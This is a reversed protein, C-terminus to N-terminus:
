ARGCEPASTAASTIGLFRSPAYKRCWELSVVHHLQSLRATRQEDMEMCLLTKAIYLSQRLVSLLNFQTLNWMVDRRNLVGRSKDGHFGCCVVYKEANCPRSTLPKVMFIHAYAHALEHFLGVTQPMSIDFVKLVFTGGLKQLRLAAKVECSLLQLSMQEQRNFDCSYDFGGDATVLDCSGEGVSAVFADINRPDYIDGSGDAGGSITTSPLLEDRLRWTPVKRDNSVLSIGHMRDPVEARVHDARFKWFAEVFGGPADAVFAAKLSEQPGDLRQVDRFDVFMEQLKFYSRSVPAFSADAGHVFEYENSVKKFVDWSRSAHHSGILDKHRKLIGHMRDNIRLLQPDVGDSRACPRMCDIHYVFKSATQFPEATM